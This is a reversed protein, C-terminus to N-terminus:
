NLTLLLSKNGSPPFFAFMNDSIKSVTRFTAFEAVTKVIVKDHAILVVEAPVSILNEGGAGTMGAGNMGAANETQFLNCVPYKGLTHIVVGLEATTITRSNIANVQGQLKGIAALQRDGAVVATNTGVAFGTLLTNRVARAINAPTWARRTALTGADIEADTVATQTPEAGVQTATVGHPNNVATAHANLATQANTILTSLETAHSKLLIVESTLEAAVEADIDALISLMDKVTDFWEEFETKYATLNNQLTSTYETFRNQATTEHGTINANYQTLRTELLNTFATLQNQATTERGAINERFHTLDTELLSVLENVKNQATTEHSTVSAKFQAIDTEISNVIDTIQNQANNEYGEVNGRFESLRQMANTENETMLENYVVYVNAVRDIYENFFVDFQATIATLDIQEILGTVMGCLQSDYRRDTINSQSIHVAGNNILVDALCLEFIDTDRQLPQPTPNAAPIGRKNRGTINRDSLSWRIVIREIRRLVGDAVDLPIHIPAECIYFYGNIWARGPNIIVEMGDGATVQLGENPLSFVGNGIFSSFYTAWDEAKYRRDRNISNFFSSKEM